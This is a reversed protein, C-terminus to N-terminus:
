QNASYKIRIPATKAVPQQLKAKRLQNSCNEKKKKAVPQQLQKCSIAAGVPKICNKAVPKSCSQTTRKNQLKQDKTTTPIKDAQKRAELLM